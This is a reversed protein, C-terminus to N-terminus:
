DDVMQFSGFKRDRHVTKNNNKIKNM